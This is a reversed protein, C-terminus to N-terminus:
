GAGRQNYYRSKSSRAFFENSIPLAAFLEMGGFAINSYRVFLHDSHVFGDESMWFDLNRSHEKM